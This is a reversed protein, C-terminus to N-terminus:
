LTGRKTPLGLSTSYRSLKMLFYVTAMLFSMMCAYAFTELGISLVHSLVGDMICQLAIRLWLIVQDQVQLMSRRLFMKQKNQRFQGNQTNLQM